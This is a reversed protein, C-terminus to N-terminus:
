REPNETGYCHKRDIKSQKVVSAFIQFNIGLKKDNEFLDTIANVTCEFQEFQSDIEETEGIKIAFAVSTCLIAVFFVIVLLKM